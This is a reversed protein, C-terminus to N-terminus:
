WESNSLKYMVSTVKQVVATAISDTRQLGSTIVNVWTVSTDPFSTICEPKTDYESWPLQATSTFNWHQQDTLICSSLERVTSLVYVLLLNHVNSQSKMMWLSEHQSGAAPPVTSSICFLDKTRSLMCLINPLLYCIPRFHTLSYNRLPVDACFLGNLAM